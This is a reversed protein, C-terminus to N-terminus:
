LATLNKAKELLDEAKKDESMATYITALDKMSKKHSAVVDEIKKHEVQSNLRKVDEQLDNVKNESDTKAISMGAVSIQAAGAVAAAAAASTGFTFFAAVGGAAAAAVAGAETSAIATSLDRIRKKHWRIDSEKKKIEQRKNKVFDEAAKSEDFESIYTKELEDFTRIAMVDERAESVHIAKDVIALLNRKLYKSNVSIYPDDDSFAKLGYKSLIDAVKKQTEEREAKRMKYHGPNNALIACYIGKNAFEQMLLAYTQYLERDRQERTPTLLWIIATPKNENIYNVIMDYVEISEKAGRTDPFGPTDTYTIDYKVELKKLSCNLFEISKIDMTCSKDGASTPFIDEEEEESSDNGGEDRSLENGLFSKGSRARGIVVVEARPNSM